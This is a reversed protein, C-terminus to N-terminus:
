IYESKYRKGVSRAMACDFLGRGIVSARRFYWDFLSNTNFYGIFIRGINIEKSNIKASTLTFDSPRRGFFAYLLCYLFSHYLFVYSFWHLRYVTYIWYRRFIFIVCSEHLLYRVITCYIASVQCSKLSPLYVPWCIKLKVSSFFPIAAYPQLSM